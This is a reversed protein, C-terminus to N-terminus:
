RRGGGRSGGGMGGGSRHQSGAGSGDRSRTRTKNGKGNENDAGYRYQHQNQHQNQNQMQARNMESTSYKKGQSEAYENAQQMMQMTRSQTQNADEAYTVASMASLSILLGTKVLSKIKM